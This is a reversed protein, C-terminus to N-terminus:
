LKVSSRFGTASNAAVALLNPLWRGLPLGLVSDSIEPQADIGLHIRHWSLYYNGGLVAKSISRASGPTARLAIISLQRLPRRTDARNGPALGFTPAPKGAIAM